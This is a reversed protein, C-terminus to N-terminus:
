LLRLSGPGPIWFSPVGGRVSRLRVPLPLSLGRFPASNPSLERLSPTGNPKETRLVGLFASSVLATPPPRCFPVTLEPGLGVWNPPPPSGPVESHPTEWHRGLARTGTESPIRLHFSRSEHM